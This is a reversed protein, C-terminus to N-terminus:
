QSKASTGGREVFGEIFGGRDTALLVGNIKAIALEGFHNVLHTIQQRMILMVDDWLVDDPLQPERMNRTSELYRIAPEVDNFVLSTPLDYRVVAFFHRALQRTGNELAFLDSAPTPARVQSPGLRTLLVIARRMLVQIEPMNHLSNTAVMLIGDPKLVRRFETLAADIDPLHYLMHNAMLVDFSHDAYPLAQADGLTMRVGSAPHQHLMGESLDVGHYVLGPLIRQLANFYLGTGSGVDLVREDGRWQICRVAWDVFDIKPVTYKEHTEQRIRLMEDTAYQKRVAEPDNSASM